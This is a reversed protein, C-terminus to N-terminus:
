VDFSYVKFSVSVERYSKVLTDFGPLIGMMKEEHVLVVPFGLGSVNRDMHVLEMLSAERGVGKRSEFEQFLSDIDPIFVIEPSPEGGAAAALKAYLKSPFREAHESNEIGEDLLAWMYAEGALDDFYPTRFSVEIRPKAGMKRMESTISPTIMGPKIGQVHLLHFGSNKRQIEDKYNSALEDFM